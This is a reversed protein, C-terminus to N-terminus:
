HRSSYNQHIGRVAVEVHIDVLPNGQPCGDEAVARSSGRREAYRAFNTEEVLTPPGGGAANGKTRVAERLLVALPGDAPAKEGVSGWMSRGVRRYPGFKSCALLWARCGAVAKGVCGAVWRWIWDYAFILVGRKLPEGKVIELM